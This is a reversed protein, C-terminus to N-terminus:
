LGLTWGLFVLCSIVTTLVFAISVASFITLIFSRSSLLIVLASTAVAIASAIYATTLLQANTDHWWFDFSTFYFTSGVSPPASGEIEQEVFDNLATWNAALDDFSSLWSVKTLFRFTLAEMIGGNRLHFDSDSTFSVYENVCAHFTDEAVPISTADGCAEVFEQSPEDFSSQEQLWNDFREFPCLGENRTDDRFALGTTTLEGCFDRLYIQAETKSPEFTDDLVLQSFTTPELLEGTDAPTVGFVM